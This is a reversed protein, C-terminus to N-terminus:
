RLDIKFGLREQHKLILAGLAERTGGGEGAIEPHDSFTARYVDGTDSITIRVTPSSAQDPQQLYIRMGHDNFIRLVCKRVPDELDYPWRFAGGWHVIIRYRDKVDIRKIGPIQALVSVLGTALFTLHRLFDDSRRNLPMIFKEGRSDQLLDFKFHLEATRGIPDPSIFYTTEPKLEDSM